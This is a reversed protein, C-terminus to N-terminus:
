QIINTDYYSHPRRARIRVIEGFRTSYKYLQNVRLDKILPSSEYKKNNPHKMINVDIMTATFGGGTKFSVNRALSNLFTIPNRANEEYRLLCSLPNIQLMWYATYSVHEIPQKIYMVLTVLVSDNKTNKESSVIYKEKAMEVAIKTPAGNYVSLVTQCYAAMTQNHSIPASM